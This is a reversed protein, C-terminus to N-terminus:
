DAKVISEYTYKSNDGYVRGIVNDHQGEKPTNNKMFDKANQPIAEYNTYLMAPQSRYYVIWLTLDFDIRSKEHIFIIDNEARRKIENLIDILGGEMNGISYMPEFPTKYDRIYVKAKFDTPLYTVIYAQTDDAVEEWKFNDYITRKKMLYGGMM